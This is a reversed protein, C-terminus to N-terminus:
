IMKGEATFEYDMELLYTSINEDANQAEMSDYGYKAVAKCIEIYLDDFQKAAQNTIDKGTKVSVSNWYTKSNEHYYHGSQKVEIQWAKWFLKGEFMAGDGQSYSLSYYLNPTFEYTIKHKALLEELYNSMDDSLWPFDQGERYNEIAVAKAEETLEDFTYVTSEIIRSM